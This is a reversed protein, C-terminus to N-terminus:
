IKGLFQNRSSNKKKMNKLVKKGIEEKHMVKGVDYATVAAGVPGLFRGAKLGAKVLKKGAEKLAVKTGVKEGVKKATDSTNKFGSFKKMKFAM